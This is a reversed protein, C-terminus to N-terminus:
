GCHENWAEQIAALKSEILRRIATLERASFGYNGGLDLPDLSFKCVMRERQVQVHVPENCDFSYFFVRHPGPIGRVTPM